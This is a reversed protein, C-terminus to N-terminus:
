FGDFRQRIQNPIGRNSLGHGGSKYDRIILTKCYNSKNLSRHNDGVRNFYVTIIENVTIDLVICANVLEIKNTKINLM